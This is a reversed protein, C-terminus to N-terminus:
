ILRVRVALLVSCMASFPSCFLVGKKRCTKDSDKTHKYRLSTEYNKQAELHLKEFM